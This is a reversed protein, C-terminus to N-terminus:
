GTWDLLDEVDDTGEIRNVHGGESDSLYVDCREKHCGVFAFQTSNRSWVPDYARDFEKFVTARGRGVTVVGGSDSLSTDGGLFALRKGDPSWAPAVGVCCESGRIFQVRGRGVPVIVIGADAFGGAAIRTGSPSWALPAPVFRRVKALFTQKGSTTITAIRGAVPPHDAAAHAVRRTGGDSLTIASIGQDGEAALTQDNPSLAVSYIGTVHDLSVIMRAGAGEPSIARLELGHGGSATYLLEQRDGVRTVTSATTLLVTGLALPFALHHSLM